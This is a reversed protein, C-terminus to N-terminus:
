SIVDIGYKSFDIEKKKDARIDDFSAKRLRAGCIACWLSGDSEEIPEEWYSHKLRHEAVTDIKDRGM